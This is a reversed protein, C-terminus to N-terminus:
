LLERISPYVSASASASPTEGESRRLFKVDYFSTDSPRPRPPSSPSLPSSQVTPSPPNFHTNSRDWFSIRSVRTEFFAQRGAQRVPLQRVNVDAIVASLNSVHPIFFIHARYRARAHACSRSSSKQRAEWKKRRRKECFRDLRIKGKDGTTRVAPPCIRM